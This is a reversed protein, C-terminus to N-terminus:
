FDLSISLKDYFDESDSLVIPLGIQEYREATTKARRTFESTTVFIGRTMRNLILAGALSRIQEAEIKDRYRKVQIGVLEGSNGELASVDIGDDGSFSTVRVRYGFDAFV